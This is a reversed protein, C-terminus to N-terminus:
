AFDGDRLAVRRNLRVGFEAGRELEVDRFKSKDRVTEGYLYGLGAGLLVGKLTSTGLLRGLLVGGLAGYGIFKMPDHRRGEAMLRGSGTERVDSEHLSYLDGSLPIWRTALEVVRFDIDIVGPRSRTARQVQTVRGVLVADTPLGSRDDESVRVRVRDGVSAEKSSLDELLEVKVVTGSPVVERAQQGLVATSTLLYACWAALYLITVRQM